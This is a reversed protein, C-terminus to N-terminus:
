LKVEFMARQLTRNLHALIREADVSKKESNQRIVYRWLHTLCHCDSSGFGKVEAGVPATESVVRNLACEIRKETNIMLVNRVEAFQLLYDIHWRLKKIKSVHRATRKELSNLASGVYLYTGEQFPFTGLRGVEILRTEPVHILLIYAGKSM